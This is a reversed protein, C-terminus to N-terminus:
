AGERMVAAGLSELTRLVRMRSAPDEVPLQAVTLLWNPAAEPAANPMRCLVKHVEVLFEVRAPQVARQRDQAGLFRQGVHLRPLNQFHEGGIGAGYFVELRERPLGAVLQDRVGFGGLLEGKEHL